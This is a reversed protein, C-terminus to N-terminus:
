KANALAWGMREHGFMNWKPNKGSVIQDDTFDPPSQGTGSGIMGPVVTPHIDDTYLYGANSTATLAHHNSDRVTSRLSGTIRAVYADETESPDIRLAASDIAGDGNSDYDAGMFEAFSDVCGFGNQRALNCVRWNSRAILPLLTQQVNGRQGSADTCSAAVNDRDFGPYYLTAVAKQTATHASQNILQMAKQTNTTCADLATVLNSTDCTGSAAAFAQRAQLYDNGCMEFYVARTSPDEMYSKDGVIRSYVESALGGTQARRVVEVNAGWTKALYEGAVYPASRRAVQFFSGQYGAFISDGYAVVRLKQAAGRNITWTSNQAISLGEQFPDSAGLNASQDGLGGDDAVTVCASLLALLALLAFGAVGIGQRGELIMRPM